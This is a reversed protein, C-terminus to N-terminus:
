ADRPDETGGPEGALMDLARESARAYLPELSEVFPERGRWFPFGGLRRILAAGVPPAQVEGYLDEPVDGVGWFREADASLPEAGGHGASLAEVPEGAVGGLLGVLENRTMGRLTFILFPDRDFEEGLLYYVAAVHKCPNSFDPCTCRTVLDRVTTPFLASGAETFVKEIDHPMDGGLLKAAFLVESSLAEAVRAWEEGALAKVSIEVSYPMARSGHVSAVVRGKTVDISAVQGRRAYSKGRSLRPGIEFGELVAIWRKAWWSKGFSGTKSRAKIGGQVESPANTVYRNGVLRRARGRGWM